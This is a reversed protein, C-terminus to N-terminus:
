INVNISNLSILFMDCCGKMNEHLHSVVNWKVPIDKRSRAAGTVLAINAVVFVITVMINHLTYKEIIIELDIDTERSIFRPHKRHVIIYAGRWKVHSEQVDPLAWHSVMLCKVFTTSHLSTLACHIQLCILFQSLIYWFTHNSPVIDFNLIYIYIYVNTILM